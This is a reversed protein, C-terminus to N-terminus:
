PATGAPLPAIDGLAYSGAPILMTNPGANYTTIAPLTLLKVVQGVPATLSLGNRRVAVPKTLIVAYAVPGPDPSAPNNLASESM